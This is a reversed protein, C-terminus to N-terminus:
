KKGKIVKEYQLEKSFKDIYHVLNNLINARLQIPIVSGAAKAHGGGSLPEAIFTAVNLDSRQTRYAFTGAALNIGVFMDIEPYKELFKYSFESVPIGDGGTFKVATKLGKIDMYYLKSIDYRSIADNEMIIRANIFEEETKSFLTNVEDLGLCRKTYKRSFIKTGLMQFMTNLKKAVIDNTLKWEFTDYSRIGEVYESLVKLNKNHTESFNFGCPNNPEDVALKSFFQYMISTGCEPKGFSNEVVIQENPLLEEVWKSTVHHDFIKINKYGNVILSELVARSPVIDAFCILTNKNFKNRQWASLVKEDIGENSCIYTAWEVAEELHRFALEFITTCGAGDLDNHTFLMAKVTKGM